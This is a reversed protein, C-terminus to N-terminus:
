RGFGPAFIAPRPHPFRLGGNEVSLIEVAVLSWVVSASPAVLGLAQTGAADVKPHYGDYSTGYVTNEFQYSTEFFAGAGLRYDRNVGDIANFDGAAWSVASFRRTTTINLSPAGTGVNSATAGIGAHNRWVEVVASWRFTGAYTWTVDMTKDTDVTAQYIEIEMHGADGQRTAALAWSLSGGAPAGLENQFSSIGKALVLDGAKVDFTSTTRSADTGHPLTRTLVLIPPM